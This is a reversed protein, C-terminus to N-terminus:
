REAGAWAAGALMLAQAWASHALMHIASSTYFVMVPWM